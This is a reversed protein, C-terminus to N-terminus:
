QQLVQSENQVSKADATGTALCEPDCLTVGINVQPIGAVLVIDGAEAVEAPSRELGKFTLIQSVKGKGRNEDGYMVVVEQNPKIRGRKIRGIGIQVTSLLNDPHEALALAKAAGRSDEAMQKLRLKRSTVLAMESMAFFGNLAILALVVILELM